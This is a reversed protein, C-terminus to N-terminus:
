QAAAITKGCLFNEPNDVARLAVKEETLYIGRQM